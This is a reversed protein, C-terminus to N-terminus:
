RTSQLLASRAALVQELAEESTEALATLHGMKRGKRASQKGYLHLKVGPHELETRGTALPRGLPEGDSGPSTAERLWAAVRV